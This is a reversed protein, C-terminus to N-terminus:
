EGIIILWFYGFAISSNFNFCNLIIRFFTLPAGCSPILQAPANNVTTKAKTVTFSCVPSKGDNQFVNSGAPDQAQIRWAYTKGDELKPELDTYFFTPTTLTTTYIQPSVEFVDFPNTFGPQLEVLKFIYQVMSPANPQGFHRPQWRFMLNQTTSINATGGCIPLDLLPAELTKFFGGVCIEKSIPVRCEFDMVELCIQNFGEPLLNSVPTGAVAQLANTNLYLALDSGTILTPMFQQLTVPQTAFNPDTQYITQFNHKVKIRFYVQRSPEIPDNLTLTYMLDQSRISAYDSLVTSFPPILSGTAQVPHIQQAQTPSLGIISLIIILIYHNFHKM